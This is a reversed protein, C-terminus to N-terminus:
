SKMLRGEDAGCRNMAHDYVELSSGFVLICVDFRNRMLEGKQKSIAYSVWIGISEYFELDDIHLNILEGCRLIGFFAIVTVPKM